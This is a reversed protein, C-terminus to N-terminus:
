KTNIKTKRGFIAVGLNRIDTRTKFGQYFCHCIFIRLLFFVIDSYADFSSAFSQGRTQIQCTLGPGTDGPEVRHREEETVEVVDAVVCAPPAIILCSAGEVFQKKRGYALGDTIALRRNIRPASKKNEWYLTNM